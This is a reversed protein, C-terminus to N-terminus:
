VTDDSSRDNVVEHARMKLEAKMLELIGNNRTPENFEVHLLVLSLLTSLSEECVFLDDHLQFTRVFAVQKWLDSLGEIKKIYHNVIKKNGPFVDLIKRCNELHVDKVFGPVSLLDDVGYEYNPYVKPLPSLNNSALASLQASDVDEFEMACLSSTLIISMLITLKSKKM